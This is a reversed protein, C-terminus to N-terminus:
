QNGKIFIYSKGAFDDTCTDCLPDISGDLVMQYFDTTLAPDIATEMICQISSHYEDEDALIHSDIYYREGLGFTHMVEHALVISMFAEVQESTPNRQFVQYIFKTVGLIHISMRKEAHTSSLGAAMLPDCGYSEHLCFAGPTRDSWLITIENNKRPLDDIIYNRIKDVNKHVHANGCVNNNCPNDIGTTCQDAPSDPTYTPSLKMNVRMSPYYRSFVNNTFASAEDILNLVLLDPGVNNGLSYDYYHNLYVNSPYLGWRRISSPDSYTRLRYKTGERWSNCSLFLQENEAGQPVLLLSSTEKKLFKWKNIQTGDHLLSSSFEIESHESLETDNIVLYAYNRPSYIYCYGDSTQQIDFEQNFFLSYDAGYIAPYMSSGDNEYTMAWLRNSDLTIYFNDSNNTRLSNIDVAEFVDFTCVDDVLEGDQIYSYAINGSGVDVGTIVSGDNSLAAIDMNMMSIAVLQESHIWRYNRGKEIFVVDDALNITGSIEVIRVQCVFASLGNESNEYMFYLSTTGEENATISIDANVTVLSNFSYINLIEFTGYVPRYTKGVELLISGSTIDIIEPEVDTVAAVGATGKSLDVLSTESPIGEAKVLVSCAAGILLILSIFLCMMKKWM